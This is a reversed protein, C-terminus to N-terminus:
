RELKMVEKGSSDYLSATNGDVKISRIAGLASVVQDEIEIDPGMMRTMGLEGLSLKGDKYKYNGFFTNVAACGNVKGDTSFSITAPTEAGATSKGKASVIKWEGCIDADSTTTAKPSTCAAVMAGLALLTAIFGKKM